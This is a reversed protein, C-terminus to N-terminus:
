NTVNKNQKTRTQQEKLKGLQYWNVKTENLHKIKIKCIKRM